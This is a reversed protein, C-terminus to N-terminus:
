TTAVAANKRSTVEPPTPSLAFASLVLCVAGIAALLLYTHNFGILDYAKGVLPSLLALGLSHGFSVGVMYVTSALRNDFHCAIYRFVSVVLIPLEISHLMKMASISVPGVALGSGAIRFIMISGALLLGYKAGIRRVLLPSVFLGAAEVFIQLSNLYGFMAAGTAKDPFQSAFYSPFQQDYVLYLNTVSLIFVMFRWFAKDRLLGLADALRLKAGAAAVTDHEPLRWFALMLVLLLGAMSALMFNIHPDVNYLRGTMFAASAFGLSGWLRVRSYEFGYARGIRDVYSEIAYSGAIFTIGLYIGGLAAGALIHSKLLPGYVYVLFLGSLMCMVGVAWLVHKRMGVKDSLYGYVPQSCMAAIFNASFVIGTETGSLQLTSRLWLALLSMSMAQAFFYVYVFTCLFRFHSQKSTM